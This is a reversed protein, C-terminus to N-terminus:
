VPCFPMPSSPPILSGNSDTALVAHREARNLVSLREQVSVNGRRRKSPISGRKIEKERHVM